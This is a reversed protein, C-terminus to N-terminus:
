IVKMQLILSRSLLITIKEQLGKAYELAARERREAERYRRTMKDMRKQYM